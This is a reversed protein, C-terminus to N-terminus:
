IKQNNHLLFKTIISYTLLLSHVLLCRTGMWLLGKCRDSRKGCFFLTGKEFPNQTYKDGIIMALGNIGKRLGVSEYAQNRLKRLWYYYSQNLHNM